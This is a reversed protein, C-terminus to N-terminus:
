KVEVRFENQKVSVVVGPVIEGDQTVPRWVPDGEKTDPDPMREFNGDEDKLLFKKFEGWRTSEEVKIYETMKNKKLWELFAPDTTDFDYAVKKMVLKGSPLQYSEQTKTRKHPVTRFYSELYFKMREITADMERCIQKYREDYFAKWNKKEVEAARIKNLCWEAKKDSDVVFTIQEEASEDRDEEEFIPVPLPNEMLESMKMEGEIM